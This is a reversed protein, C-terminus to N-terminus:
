TSIVNFYDYEDPTPYDFNEIMGLFVNENIQGKRRQINKDLTNAEIYVYTWVVNYKRLIEKYANRYKRKLNINNIVINNGNEAAEVLRNEFIESVKNEEEKTGVCKEGNKCMGLEARIEDRSLVVTREDVIGHTKIHTDKGSGPLGIYLYACISNDAKSALNYSKLLSFAETKTRWMNLENCITKFTLLKLKDYKTTEKNESVSGETDFKEILYLFEMSPVNESLRLMKEVCDKSNFLRFPEMHWRVLQCIPERLNVGLDWLIRRTIRESEIEHGYHHWLGDKEKFTTTTGKGIDHFLAAFLLIQKDRTTFTNMNEQIYEVAANVVKEVHDSVHPGESHWKPSQNTTKLREFEPISYIYKWNITIIGKPNNITFYNNTSFMM